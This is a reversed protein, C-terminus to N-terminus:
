DFCEPMDDRGSIHVLQRPNFHQLPPLNQIPLRLLFTDVDAVAVLGAEVGM